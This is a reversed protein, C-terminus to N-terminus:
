LKLAEPSESQASHPVDEKPFGPSDFTAIPGHPISLAAGVLVAGTAVVSAIVARDFGSGTPWQYTPSRGPRSSGRSRRGQRNLPKARDSSPTLRVQDPM